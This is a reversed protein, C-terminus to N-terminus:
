EFNETDDTDDDTSVSEESMELSSNYYDHVDATSYIDFYAHSNDCHFSNDVICMCDKDTAMEELFQEFTIEKRDLLFSYLKIKEERLQDRKKTRELQHKPLVNDHILNFFDDTKRSDHLKLREIFKFFHDRKLISRNLFSNFAEVSSTTRM